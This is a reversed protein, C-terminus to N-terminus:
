DWIDTIAPAAAASGTKELGYFAELTTRDLDGLRALGGRVQTAREHELVADLPTDSVFCTADLAQPETAV